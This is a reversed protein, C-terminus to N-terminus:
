MPYIKSCTSSANCRQFEVFARIERLVDAYDDLTVSNYDHDGEIFKFRISPSLSYHLSAEKGGYPDNKGQIILMPKDLHKLHSTRYSEEPNDPHKFPYGFCIFKKIAPHEYILSSVIGGASHALIIIDDYQQKQIFNKLYQSQEPVSGPTPHILYRWRSPHKPLSLFCIIKRFIDQTRYKGKICKLLTNEMLFSLKKEISKHTKTFQSEYFDIKAGFLHLAAILAELTASGKDFNARGVVLLHARNKKMYIKHKKASDPLIKIM